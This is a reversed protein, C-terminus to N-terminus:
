PNPSKAGALLQRRTLLFDRQQQQTLASIKADRALLQAQLPTIGLYRTSANYEYISLLTARSWSYISLYISFRAALVVFLGDSDDRLYGVM